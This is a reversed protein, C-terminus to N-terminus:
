EFGDVFLLDMADLVMSVANYAAGGSGTNGGDNITVWLTFRGYRNDLVYSVAPGTSVFTNLASLTGTLALTSTGSGSVSVGGASTASLTGTAGASYTVTMVGSGADVDSFSIGRLRTAGRNAIPFVPYRLSVLPADNVAEVLLAVTTSATLPTVPSSAPGTYGNDNIAISLTDSGSFDHASLYQLQGAAIFANLTAISGTLEVSAPTLVTITVGYAAAVDSAVTLTGSTVAFTATAPNSGADLDAFSIDTLASAVDERVTISSSAVGITPAQNLLVVHLAMSADASHAGGSGSTGNDNVSVALTTGGIFDLAPEYGLGNLSFLTNIDVLRGTLTLASAARDIRVGPYGDALLTGTGTGISLTVTYDGGNDDVDSFVIGSFRVSSNQPIEIPASPVSITPADNISTINITVTDTASLAGGIGNAGIDNITINLLVTGNSDPAPYYLLDGGHIATNIDGIRGVLTLYDSSGAIQLGPSHMYLFGLPAQITVMVNSTGADPDAFTMGTLAIGGSDEYTTVPGRIAISPARNAIAPEMVWGIDQFLPITLDTTNFVSANYSPEMLLDPHTDPTWHSVSSGPQVPNPANMRVYTNNTGSLEGRSNLGLTVSVAASSLATRIASGREQSIGYSPITITADSGGMSPLGTAVNNAVLVAVAGADQANKVKVTFPCTGRDILAIHGALASANTLASCGDTTSPGAMDALDLAAVVEGSIGGIPVVTGFAAVAAASEGAISAPTRILLAPARDLYASVASNVNMGLWVLYPDNTTSALRQEVTMDAWSMSTSTDYLFRSWIDPEFDSLSLFGLGHGLEHLVVPLFALSGTPAPPETGLWFPRFTMCAGSIGVSSNFQARIHPFARDPVSTGTYLDVGAISNALAVPYTTDAFPAGSFNANQRVPGAQGLIASSATCTLPDFTAAVYTEVNSHLLAGWMNAALQFVFYRQMGRTTAPNGAVPALPTPDNFGEGPGDNNLITIKAAQVFPSLLMGVTLAAAIFNKKM